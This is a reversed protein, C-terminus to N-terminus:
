WRGEIECGILCGCSGRWRCGLRMCDTVKLVEAARKGVVSGVLVVVRQAVSCWCECTM